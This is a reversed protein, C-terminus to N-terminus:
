CVQLATTTFNAFYLGVPPVLHDWICLALVFSYVYVCLNVGDRDCVCMRVCARIGM